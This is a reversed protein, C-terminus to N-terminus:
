GPGWTCDRGGGESYRGHKGDEHFDWGEEGGKNGTQVNVNEVPWDSNGRSRTLVLAGRRVSSCGANEPRCALM